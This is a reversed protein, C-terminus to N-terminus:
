RTTVVGPASVDFFTGPKSLLATVAAAKTPGDVAGGWLVQRGDRLVLTVQEPTPAKVSGLRSAIGRPLGTLVRLAATTSSDSGTELRVVGSPVTAVVAVEAGSGDLLRVGDASAIGVVPVREVVTVELTDPWARSVTVSDVAALGAVRKRVAATDVRALPTGDVAGVAAEVQADTLRSLGTVHVQEVDLLPSGLVVWGVLGLPAAVAAVLGARRLRSHRRDRREAAAKAALRPGASVVRPLKSM